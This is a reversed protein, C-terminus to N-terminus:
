NINHFEFNETNTLLKYLINDGSMNKIHSVNGVFIFLNKARSIAVTLIEPKETIFYLQESQENYIGSDFIVIKREIGQINEVSECLIGNIINPFKNQNSILFDNIKNADQKFPTILLIDGGTINDNFKEKQLNIFKFVDILTKEIIGSSFDNIFGTNAFFLSGRIEQKGLTQYIETKNIYTNVIKYISNDQWNNLEKLLKVKYDTDPLFGQNNEIFNRILIQYKYSTFLTAYVIEKNSRFNDILINNSNRNINKLINFINNDIKSTGYKDYFDYLENETVEINPLQEKKVTKFFPSNKQYIENYINNQTRKNYLNENDLQGNDGVSIINSSRSIIPLFFYGPTQYSEDVITLDFIEKMPYTKGIRSIVSLHVPFINFLTSIYDKTKLIDFLNEKEIKNSYENLKLYKLLKEKYEIDDKLFYNELYFIIDELIINNDEKEIYNIENLIEELKGLLINIDKDIQSFKKQAIKKYQNINDNIKIATYINLNVNNDYSKFKIINKLGKVINKHITIINKNNEIGFAYLLKDLFSLNIKNEFLNSLKNIAVIANDEQLLINLQNKFKKIEIYKELIESTKSFETQLRNEIEVFRKKDAVNIGNLKIKHILHELVNNFNSDLDDNIFLINGINLDIFRQKFDNLAKKNYTTFLFNINENFKAKALASIYLNNIILQIAVYTKGSGPIGHIISFHESSANKASLKQSLTFSRNIDNLKLNFLNAKYTRNFINQNYYRLFDYLSEIGVKNNLKKNLVIYDKKTYKNLDLDGSKYVIFENNIDYKNTFLAHFIEKLKIIKNNISFSEFDAINFKNAVLGKGLIGEKLINLIESVNYTIESKVLKLRSYENFNIKKLLDYNIYIEGIELNTLIQISLISYLKSNLKDRLTILSIIPNIGDILNVNALTNSLIQKTEQFFELKENDESFPFTSFTHLTKKNEIESNSYDIIDLLKITENVNLFMFFKLKQLMQESLFEKM